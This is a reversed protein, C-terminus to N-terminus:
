QNFGEIAGKESMHIVFVRDLQTLELISRVSEKVAVLKIGGGPPLKKLVSVLAGLGSSDIFDVEKLNLIMRNKGTEVLELLQTKFDLAVSADIKKSHPTLVVATTREAKSIKM